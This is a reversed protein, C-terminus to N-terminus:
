ISRDIEVVCDYFLNVGLEIDEPKSYEEPSHSVGRISPIFIMATPIKKSIEKADHGAGSSMVKFNYDNEKATKIMIKIINEDLKVSPKEINKYIELKEDAKVFKKIEDYYEEINSQELDRVETLVEVSGPIVNYMGPKIIINGITMVFPQDFKKAEKYLKNIVNPLKRIPDDRLNMPTTGAHNATGNIMINYRTIGVIGDVIGVDYKENELTGGQEIHIELFAVVNSLNMECSKVDDLTLNYFALKEKFEDSIINNGCISRSGFTGGMESGEEANFCALIIGHNLHRKKDKLTELIEFGSFIGLAGDYLGGNKVTDLHSGIMIFKGKNNPNYTIFLNGIKDIKTDFGKSRALNDLKRLADYYEKSFALRSIGKGDLGKGIEGIDKLNKLLRDINIM